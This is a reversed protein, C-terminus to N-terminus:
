VRPSDQRRILEGIAVVLKDIRDDTQRMKDDTQSMKDDTRRMREDTQRMRRDTEAGQEALRDFAARTHTALDAVIQKLSHQDEVLREVSQSLSHQDEARIQIVTELIDLRKEPRKEAM